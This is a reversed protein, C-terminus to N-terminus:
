PTTQNTIILQNNYKCTVGDGNSCGEPVPIDGAPCSNYEAGDSYEFHIHPTWGGTGGVSGIPDGAEVSQGVSVEVSNMHAYLMKITGVDTTASVIVTNGYSGLPASFIVEGPAAALFDTHAINPGAVDIAQLKNEFHSFTGLPGQVVTYQGATPWAACGFPAYNTRPTSELQVITSILPAMVISTIYFFIGVLVGAVAIAVASSAAAVTATGLAGFFAIIGGVVTAIGAAPIAVLDRTKIKEGYISTSIDDFAKKAAVVTKEAIWLVAQIAIDVIIGLGPAIANLSEAAISIGVKAAVWTAGKIALKVIAEKVFTKAGAIGGELLVNPIKSLIKQSVKDRIIQIFRKGAKNGAWSRLAQYPHSIYSFVKNFRGIKDSAKNLLESIPKLAKIVGTTKKSIEKGLPSQAIKRIESGVSDFIEPRTKILKGLESNPNDKVFHRIRTLLKPTLHKGYLLIAQPSLEPSQTKPDSILAAAYFAEYGSFQLLSGPIDHRIADELLKSDDIPTYLHPNVGKKELSNHIIAITRNAQEIRDILDPDQSLRAISDSEFKQFETSHNTVFVDFQHPLSDVKKSLQQSLISLSKIQLLKIEQDDATIPKTEEELQQIVDENKSIQSQYEAAQQNQTNVADYVSHIFNSSISSVQKKIEPSLSQTDILLAASQVAVDINTVCVTNLEVAETIIQNQVEPPLTSFNEHTFAVEQVAKYSAALAATKSESKPSGLSVLVDDYVQIKEGKTLRSERNALALNKIKSHALAMKVQIAVSKSSNARIEESELLAQNQRYEAVLAELEPPISAEQEKPKERKVEKEAEEAEKFKKILNEIETGIVFKQFSYADEIRPDVSGKVFSEYFKLYLNCAEGLTKLDSKSLSDSKKPLIDYSFELSKIAKPYDIKAM